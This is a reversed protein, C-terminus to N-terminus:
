HRARRRTRAALRSKRPPRVKSPPTGNLGAANSIADLARWSEDTWYTHGRPCVDAPFYGLLAGGNDCRVLVRKWQLRCEPCLPNDPTGLKSRKADNKMQIEHVDRFHSLRQVARGQLRDKSVSEPEGMRKARRYSDVNGHSDHSSGRATHDWANQGARTCPGVLPVPVTPLRGKAVIANGGCRGHHPAPLRLANVNTRHIESSEQDM